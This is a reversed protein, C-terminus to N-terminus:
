YRHINYASEKEKAAFQQLLVAASPCRVTHLYRLTLSMCPATRLGLFYTSVGKVTNLLLIYHLLTHM